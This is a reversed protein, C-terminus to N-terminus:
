RGLIRTELNLVGSGGFGLQKATSHSIDLSRGRTFPGRGVVTVRASRGNRPNIVLLQTGLPLTRHAAHHSQKARYYSTVMTEASTCVPWFLLVSAMSWRLTMESSFVVGSLRPKGPPAGKEPGPPREVVM